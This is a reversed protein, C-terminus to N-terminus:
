LVIVMSMLTMATMLWIIVLKSFLPLFGLPEFELPENPPHIESRARELRCFPQCSNLAVQPRAFVYDYSALTHKEWFM